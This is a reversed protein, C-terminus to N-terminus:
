GVEPGAIAFVSASAGAGSKEGRRMRILERQRVFGRAALEEAGGEVTTNLDIFVRRGGLQSLMGDLLEARSQEDAAVVPGVYFAETGSRALAYGRLRGDAAVSMLPRVCADEFLSTLLRSRDAGFAGRDLAFVQSPDSVPTVASGQGSSAVGAWREIRVEAEFGLGEYVSAGEPTADLKITAVNAEALRALAARVLKTAIGRRRFEPDVLVMGIWALERGYATTTATAVVKGGATAAFCGRPDLWLLRRWDEETQNWRAVAKLRMAEGVDERTLFRNAIDETDPM